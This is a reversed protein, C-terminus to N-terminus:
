IRKFNSCVSELMRKSHLLRVPSSLAIQLLSCCFIRGFLDNIKVPLLKVSVEMLEVDMRM